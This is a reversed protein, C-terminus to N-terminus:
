GEPVIATSIPFEWIGDFKGINYFPETNLFYKFM